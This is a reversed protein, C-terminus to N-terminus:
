AALTMPLRQRLLLLLHQVSGARTVNYHTRVAKM